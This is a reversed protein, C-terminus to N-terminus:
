LIVEAGSIIPSMLDGGRVRFPRLLSHVISEVECVHTGLDALSEVAVVPCVKFIEAAAECGAVGGDADDGAREVEGLALCVSFPADGVFDDTIRGVDGHGRMEVFHNEGLVSFYTALDGDAGEHERVRPDGIVLRQRFEFDGDFCHLTRTSELKRGLQRHLPPLPQTNIRRTRQNNLLIRLPLLRKGLVLLLLNRRRPRRPNLQVIHSSPNEPPPLPPYVSPWISPMCPAANNFVPHCIILLSSSVIGLKTLPSTKQTNYLVVPRADYQM